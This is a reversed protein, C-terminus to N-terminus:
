PCRLGRLLSEGREILHDVHRSVLESVSGVCVYGQVFAQPKASGRACKQIRYETLDIVTRGAPFLQTVNGPPHHISHPPRSM